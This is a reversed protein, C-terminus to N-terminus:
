PRRHNAAASGASGNQRIQPKSRNTEDSNNGNLFQKYFDVMTLTRIDWSMFNEALNRCAATMKDIEGTNAMLKVILDGLERREYDILYGINHNEFYDVVDGVPNTVVPRGAAMFDGLKNPWKNKNRDNDKLPMFMIDAASIMANYDKRAIWGKNVIMKRLTDNRVLRDIVADKGTLVVQLRQQLNDPLNMLADVLIELDDIDEWEIVGVIGITFKEPDINLTRRAKSKPLVVINEVDAGGHLVLKPKGASITEVREALGRSLIIVGDAWRRIAPEFYSDYKGVLLKESTSRHDIIGGSGFLDMWESILPKRFIFRGVLLPWSVAPRHGDAHYLDYRHTLVYFLRLLFGLPGLGGRRLRWNVIDPFVVVKVGDHDEVAFKYWKNAPSSTLLTVQHGLKVMSVAFRISRNYNQFNQLSMSSILVKM